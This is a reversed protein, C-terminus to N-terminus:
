QVISVMKVRLKMLIPVKEVVVLLLLLVLRFQLHDLLWAVRAVAALLKTDVM